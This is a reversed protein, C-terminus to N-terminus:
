FNRLMWLAGKFVVSVTYDCFSQTVSIGRKEEKTGKADKATREEEVVEFADWLAMLDVDRDCEYLVTVVTLSTDIKVSCKGLSYPLSNWINKEGRGKADKAGRRNTGRM